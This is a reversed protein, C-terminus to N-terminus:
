REKLSWNIIFILYILEVINYFILGSLQINMSKVSDMGGLIRILWFIRTGTLRDAVTTFISYHNM